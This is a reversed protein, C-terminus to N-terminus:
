EQATSVPSNISIPVEGPNDAIMFKKQKAIDLQLNEGRKRQIIEQKEKETMIVVLHNGDM